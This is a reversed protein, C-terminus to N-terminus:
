PSALLRSRGPGSRDPCSVPASSRAPLRPSRTSGTTTSGLFDLPRAIAELDGEQVFGFDSSSRYHEVLEEPYGRGFLPDMYLANMNLDALRTVRVDEPDDSAPRAPQLNLATGVM